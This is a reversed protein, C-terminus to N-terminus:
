GGARSAILYRELLGGEIADVAELRRAHADWFGQSGFLPELDDANQEWERLWAGATKRYSATDDRIRIRDFGAASLLTSYDAEATPVPPGAEIARSRDAGTLGEAVAIVHFVM